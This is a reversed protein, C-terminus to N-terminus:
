DEVAVIVYYNVATSATPALIQFAYTNTGAAPSPDIATFGQYFTGSSLYWNVLNISSNKLIRVSNFSAGTSIASTNGTGDPQIYIKIARTGTCVINVLMNTVLTYSSAGASYAGSSASVVINTPALKTTTVAGNTLSATGIGGVAIQTDSLTHNALQTGVIGALPALQSGLISANSALQTGVINASSSLNLTTLYGLLYPSATIVGFQDIVMFSPNAPLIPLTITYNSSLTPPQLTLAFTSNPSTNRMIAAGFDMDAAISTTSNSQWVFKRTLANYSAQAPAVLNIIDGTTPPFVTGNITLQIVNGLSDVYSLNGTSNEFLTNLGPASPQSNFTIGGVGIAKFGNFNLDRNINIGDPTIQVGKGPTHDHQDILTLSSNVDYAYTPGPEQGVTPIVLNMNPSTTNTSM